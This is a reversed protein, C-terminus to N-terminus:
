SALAEVAKIEVIRVRIVNDNWPLVPRPCVAFTNVNGKSAVILAGQQWQGELWTALRVLPDVDAPLIEIVPPRANRKGVSAFELAYTM